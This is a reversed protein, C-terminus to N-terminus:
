VLHFEEWGCGWGLYSIAWGAGLGLFISGGMPMLGEIGWDWHFCVWLGGGGPFHTIDQDWGM